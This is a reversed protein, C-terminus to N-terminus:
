FYPLSSRSGINVSMADISCLNSQLVDTDMAKELVNMSTCLCYSGRYPNYFKRFIELFASM